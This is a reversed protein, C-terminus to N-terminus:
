KLMTAADCKNKPCVALFIVKTERCIGRVVWQRELLRGKNYKRKGFKSEDIEVTLGSGGILTPTERSVTELCVERCFSLWDAITESSLKTPGTQSHFRIDEYSPANGSRGGCFVSVFVLIQVLSLKAGGESFTGDFISIYQKKCNNNTCRFVVPSTHESRRDHTLKLVSRCSPCSCSNKILGDECCLNFTNEYTSLLRGLTFPNFCDINSLDFHGTLLSIDVNPRAAAM